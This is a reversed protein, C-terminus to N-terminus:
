IPLGPRRSLNRGRVQENGTKPEGEEEEGNDDGEGGMEEDDDNMVDDAIEDEFPDEFHM